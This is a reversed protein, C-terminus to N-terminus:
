SRESGAFYCLQFFIEVPLTLQAVFQRCHRKWKDSIDSIFCSFALSMVLGTEIKANLTMM